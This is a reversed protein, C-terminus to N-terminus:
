KDASNCPYWVFGHNLNGGDIYYGTIAGAQNIGEPRTGQGPGTGADPADFKTFGGYPARVYGHLVNSADIYPGTIMRAANLKFAATGQVPGTGGGPVDFMTLTGDPARLFGQLVYGPNLTYGTTAGAPNIGGVLTGQQVGTGGGPVDVTTISGDPARVFGHSADNTDYYWGVMAGEPNLGNTAVETGQYPGTGAGPADFSTIAGDRHRVFGHIVSNEDLYYGAVIGASNISTALTGLGQGITSGAGPADFTTFSGDPYRVFAHFVDNPDEFQGAIVGLDNISYAVTGQNLNAGLGAGPADFSIIHGDPTRLFGHPVVNADTYSGVITGEANNAFAQTGCSPACAPSSVTGTGPPDFEILKRKQGFSHDDQQGQAPLQVSIALAASLAIASICGPIKTKMIKEEKFNVEPEPIVENTWFGRGRHHILPRCGDRQRLGGATAITQIDDLLSKQTIIYTISLDGDLLITRATQDQSVEM